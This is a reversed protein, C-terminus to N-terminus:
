SINLKLPKVWYKINDSSLITNIPKAGQNHGPIDRIVYRDNGLNKAMLYSGKYSPKLKANVGQKIARNRILVYDGEKYKTPSKSRKDKYQKNYHRLINTAREASDKNSDREKELNRNVNTM